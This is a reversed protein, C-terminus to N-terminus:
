LSKLNLFRIADEPTEFASKPVFLLNFRPLDVVICSGRDTIYRISEIKLRMGVKPDDSIFYIHQGEVVLTTEQLWRKAAKATVLVSRAPISLPWLVGFLGLGQLLRYESGLVAILGAVPIAIFCWWFRRSYERASWLALTSRPIKYPKSRLSDM